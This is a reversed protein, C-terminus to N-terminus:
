GSAQEGGFYSSHRLISPKRCGSANTEKILIGPGDEGAGAAPLDGPGQPGSM